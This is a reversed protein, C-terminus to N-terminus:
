WRSIIYLVIRTLLYVFLIVVILSNNAIWRGSREFINEKYASVKERNLFASIDGAIETADKYRTEPNMAMAKLCVAELPRPISSDISRPAPPAERQRLKGLIDNKSGAYPAAGTLIYYLVAGLAYIDARHDVKKTEGVAQEPSMFAPTGLIAGDSTIGGAPQRNRDAESSPVADEGSSGAAGRDQLLAIGWDMLLVEGFDGIMINEPKIDRHIVGRSHAFAIAECIRQLITLRERLLHHDRMFEALTKGRVLKMTYFVRGDPRRGVDHIPVIGPHELSAVVKAERMMREAIEDAASAHIVKMAVTRDLDLDEALYVTAMGGSGIEDGILYRGEKGSHGSVSRRLRELQDDSLM